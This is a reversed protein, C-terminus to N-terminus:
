TTTPIRRRMKGKGSDDEEDEEDEDEDEESDEEDEEDEVDEMDEMDEMDEEVDIKKRTKSIEHSSQNAISVDIYVFFPLRTRM